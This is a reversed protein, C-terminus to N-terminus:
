WRSGKDKRARLYAPIAAVLIILPVVVGVVYGLRSSGHAWLDAIVEVM